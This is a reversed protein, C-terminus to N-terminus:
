KIYFTCVKCTVSKGEGHSSDEETTYVTSM